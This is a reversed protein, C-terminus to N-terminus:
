ELLLESERSGILRWVQRDISESTFTVHGDVYLVNVGADHQSAATSAGELIYDLHYCSPNNPPIAHNYLTYGVNGNTWPTGRSTRSSLEDGRM